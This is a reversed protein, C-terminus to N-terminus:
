TLHIKVEEIILALDTDFYNKLKLYWKYGRTQSYDIKILNKTDRGAPVGLTSILGQYDTSSYKLFLLDKFKNYNEITKTQTEESQLTYIDLYSKLSKATDNNLFMQYNLQIRHVTFWFNSKEIDDYSKTNIHRLNELMYIALKELSRSELESTITEKVLNLLNTYNGENTIPFIYFHWTYFDFTKFIYRKYDSVKEKAANNDIYKLNNINDNSFKVLKSVLDNILYNSYKSNVLKLRQIILWFHFLIINYTIKFNLSLGFENHFEYSDVYQFIQRFIYDSVFEVRHKSDILSKRYEFKLKLKRYMNKLNFNSDIFNNPLTNFRMEFLTNFMLNVDITEFLPAPRFFYEPHPMRFNIHGAQKNVESYTMVIEKVKFNKAISSKRLSEIINEQKIYLYAREIEREMPTLKDGNYFKNILEDVALKIKSYAELDEIFPVRGCIIVKELMSDYMPKEYEEFFRSIIYGTEYIKLNHLYKMHAIEYLNYLPYTKQLYFTDHYNDPPNMIKIKPEIEKKHTFRKTLFAQIYKNYEKVTEDFIYERNGIYLSAPSHYNHIISFHKISKFLKKVNKNIFM